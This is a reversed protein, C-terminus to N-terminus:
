RSLQAATARLDTSGAAVLNICSSLTGVLTERPLRDGNGSNWKRSRKSLDDARQLVFRYVVPRVAALSLSLSSPLLLSFSLHRSTMIPSVFTASGTATTDGAVGLLFFGRSRRPGPWGDSSLPDRRPRSGRTSLLPRPRERKRERPRM